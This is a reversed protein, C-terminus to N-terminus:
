LSQAPCAEKPAAAPQDKVKKENEKLSDAVSAKGDKTADLTAQMSVIADDYADLLEDTLHKRFEATVPWCVDHWNGQGDKTSPMNVYMGKEGSCIKFGDIKFSDEITVSAFGVLNGRPAIPRVQVDIKPGDYAGATKKEDTNKVTM